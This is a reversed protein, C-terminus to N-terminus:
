QLALFECISNNLDEAAPADYNGVAIVTYSGDWFMQLSSNVGSSAGGGNM